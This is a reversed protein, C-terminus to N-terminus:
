SFDQPQNQNVWPLRRNASHKGALLVRLAYNKAEIDPKNLSKPLFSQVAKEIPVDDFSILQMGARM